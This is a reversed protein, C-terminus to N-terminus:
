HRQATPTLLLRPPSKLAAEGPFVQNAPAVELIAEKTTRSPTGEKGVSRSHAHRDGCDDPAVRGM